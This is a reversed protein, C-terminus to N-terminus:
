EPAPERKKVQTEHVPQREHGLKDAHGGPERYEPDGRHESHNDYNGDHHGNDDGATSSKPFSLSPAETEDVQDVNGCCEEHMRRYVLDDVVAKDGIERAAKVSLQEKEQHGIDSRCDCGPHDEELLTSDHILLHLLFVYGPSFEIRNDPSNKVTRTATKMMITVPVSSWPISTSLAACAAAIM